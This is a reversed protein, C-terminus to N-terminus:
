ELNSRMFLGIDSSYWEHFLAVRSKGLLVSPPQSVLARMLVFWRQYGLSGMPPMGM